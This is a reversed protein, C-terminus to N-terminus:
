QVTLLWAVFDAKEVPTCPRELVDKCNRKFWKEVHAPDTLRKPNASPALPEILKRTRAHQGETKPNETHCDTCSAIKGDAQRFKLFYLKEGGSASARGAQRVYHDLIQRPTEACAHGILGIHGILAMSLAAWAPVFKNM